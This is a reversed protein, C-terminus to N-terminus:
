AMRASMATPQNGKGFGQQFDREANAAQAQKGNSGTLMDRAVQLAAEVSAVPKMYDPEVEQGEAQESEPQAGPQQAGQPAGMLKAAQAEAGDHQAQEVEPPVMGVLVTGDEHVEIQVCTEKM